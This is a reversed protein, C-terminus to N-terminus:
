QVTGGLGGYSVELPEGEEMVWLDYNLGARKFADRVPAFDTYSDPYAVIILTGEYRSIRQATGRVATISKPGGLQLGKGYRLKIRYSGDGISRAEVHKEFFEGQADDPSAVLFLQGHSLAVIARSGRGTRQRPVSMTKVADQKGDHWRKMTSTLKVTAQEVMEQHSDFNEEIEAAAQTVDLLNIGLQDRKMSASDIQSRLEQSEAVLEVLEANTRDIVPPPLAQQAQRLTEVRVSAQELGLQLERLKATDIQTPTQQGSPDARVQVLLTVLIALFVIGGFTNCITDLFLDFSDESVTGRRKM